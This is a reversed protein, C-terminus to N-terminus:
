CWHSQGELKLTVFINILCWGKWIDLNIFQWIRNHGLLKHYLCQKMTLCVPDMIYLIKNLNNKHELWCFNLNSSRTCKLHSIWYRTYLSLFHTNYLTVRFNKPPALSRKISLCMISPISTSNSFHLRNKGLYKTMLNIFNFNNIKFMNWVIKFMITLFVCCLYSETHLTYM